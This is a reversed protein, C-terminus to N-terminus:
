PRFRRRKQERLCGSSGPPRLVGPVRFVASSAEPSPEEVLLPMFRRAFAGDTEIHERYESTTTAGIM